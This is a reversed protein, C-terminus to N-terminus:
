RPRNPATPGEVGAKGGLDEGGKAVCAAARVHGSREAQAERRRGGRCSRAQVPDPRPSFGRWAKMFARAGGLEGVPAGVCAGHLGAPARPRREARAGRRGARGDAQPVPPRDSRAEGGRGPSRRAGDVKGPPMLVCYDARPM